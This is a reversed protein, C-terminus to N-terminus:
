AERHARARADQGQNQHETVPEKVGGPPDALLSKRQAESAAKLAALREDNERKAEAEAEARDKEALRLRAAEAAKAEAMQAERLGALRAEEGALAPDKQGRRKAHLAAVHDAAAKAAAEAAAVHEDTISDPHVPANKAEADPKLGFQALLDDAVAEDTWTNARRHRHLIGVAVEHNTM